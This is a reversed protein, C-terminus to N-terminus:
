DAEALGIIERSNLPRAWVMIEDMEGVFPKVPLADFAKNSYNLGGFGMRVAQNFHLRDDGGEVRTKVPRGDVYLDVESLRCHDSPMSVAIHHWKGDSLCADEVTLRRTGSVMVEPAGNNLHLNFFGSIQTSWISASNMLMMNELSDTKVWLAYSVAHGSHHPGMAFVGMRSNEDFRGAKNRVGETLTVGATVASYHPGFTGRNPILESCKIGRLLKPDEKKRNAMGM